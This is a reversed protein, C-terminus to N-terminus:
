LVVGGAKLPQDKPAGGAQEGPGKQGQIDADQAHVQIAKQGTGRGQRGKQEAKKRDEERADQAGLKFAEVILPRCATKFEKTSTASTHIHALGDIISQVKSM